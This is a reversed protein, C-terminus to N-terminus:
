WVILIFSGSVIMICYKHTDVILLNETQTSHVNRGLHLQTFLVGQEQSRVFCMWRLVPGLHLIQRLRQQKSFEPNEFCGNERRLSLIWCVWFIMNLQTDYLTLSAQAVKL